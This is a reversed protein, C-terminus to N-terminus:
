RERKYPRAVTLRVTLGARAGIATLSDLSFLEVKKKLLQNLRPRSLGLRQALDGQKTQENLSSQLHAALANLLAIRLAKVRKASQTASAGPNLTPV